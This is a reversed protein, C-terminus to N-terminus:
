DAHLFHKIDWARINDLAETMLGKSRWHAQRLPAEWGVAHSDNNEGLETQATILVWDTMIDYDRGLSQILDKVAQDFKEYAEKIEPPAAECENCM